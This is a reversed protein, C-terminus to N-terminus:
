TQLHVEKDQDPTLVIPIDVDLRVVTAIAPLPVISMAVAAGPTVVIGAIGNLAIIGHVFTQFGSWTWSMTPSPGPETSGYLVHPAPGPQTLTQTQGSGVTPVIASGLADITLHNATTSLGLSSGTSTTSIIVPGAIISGSAGSYGFVSVAGNFSGPMSVRVTFAGSLPVTVYWAGLQRLGATGGFTVLALTPGALVTVTPVAFTPGFANYVWVVLANTGAPLTIPTDIISASSVLSGASATLVPLAM